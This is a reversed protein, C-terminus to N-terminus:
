EPPAKPKRKPRHKKRADAKKKRELEMHRKEELEPRMVFRPPWDPTEGSNFQKEFQLVLTQLFRPRSTGLYDKVIKELREFEEDSLKLTAFNRVGLFL